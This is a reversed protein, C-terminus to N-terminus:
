VDSSHLIIFSFDSVHIFHTLLTLKGDFPCSWCLSTESMALLSQHPIMTDLIYLPLWHTVWASASMVISDVPDSCLTLFSLVSCLLSPSQRCGFVLHERVPRYNVEHIIICNQSFRSWTASIQLSPKQMCGYKMFLLKFNYQGPEAQRRKKKKIKKKITM